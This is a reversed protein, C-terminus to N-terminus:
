DSSFTTSTLQMAAGRSRYFNSITQLADFWMDAKDRLETAIVCLRRMAARGRAHIGGEVVTLVLYYITRPIPGHSTETQAFINVSSIHDVPVYHSWLTADGGPKDGWKIMFTVTDLYVYRRDSSQIDWGAPGLLSSPNIIVRLKYFWDGNSLLVVASDVDVTSTSYPRPVADRRSKRPMQMPSASPADDRVTRFLTDLPDPNM